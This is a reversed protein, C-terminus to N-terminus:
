DGVFIGFFSLKYTLDRNGLGKLGKLGEGAGSGDSRTNLSRRVQQKLESPNMMSPVDPVVILCGVIMVKDGPKCRDVCEDRVIVDMSRPMSGAPVENENEQLRIRQWDGWRTTRSEALLTWNSRNGCNRQPCCAPFTVKFQQEVGTVVNACENCQFTGVLLEPKVETTRTVTGCMTVLQGLRETKLSRLGCFFPLDYFAATFKLEDTARAKQVKEQLEPEELTALLLPVAANLAERVM